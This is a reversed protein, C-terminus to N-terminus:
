EKSKQAFHYFFWYTYRYQNSLNSLQGNSKSYAETYEVFEKMLSSPLFYQSIEETSAKQQYLIILLAEGYLRPLQRNFTFYKEFDEKFSQLDKNLLHYCLLYDIASQNDPNSNALLRLGSLNDEGKRLTDAQPLFSQKDLLEKSIIQRNHIMGIRKQAWQHHFLTKDLMGLYRLAAEKEGIIMNTEALRKVMRSSRNYPSFILGLHASHQTLNMDGIQYYAENSSFINLWGSQRGLPLFLSEAFPQYYELLHAPLANYKALAINTFYSALQNELKYEASLHLVKNWNGFYGECSLSLLKERNFDPRDKWIVIILIISSIIVSSRLSLIKDPWILNLIIYITSLASPLLYILKNFPYLYAEEITVLFYSRLIVPIFIVFILALINAIYHISKQRLFEFVQFIFYLVITGGSILYGFLIFLPFLFQKQRSSLIRRSIIFILLTLILSLSHTITYGIHYHMLSETLPLILIFWILNKESSFYPNIVKYFLVWNIYFILTILLPGATKLYFFQTFFDGALSALGGPKNFYSLLYEPSYIFLTIQEKFFLHYKFTLSYFLFVFLGPILLLTFRISKNIRINESLSTAM